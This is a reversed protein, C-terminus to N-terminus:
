PAIGVGFNELASICYLMDARIGSEKAKNVISENFTLEATVFAGGEIRFPSFNELGGLRSNVM